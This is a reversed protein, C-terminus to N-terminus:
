LGGAGLYVKTGGPQDAFFAVGSTITGGGQWAADYGPTYSGGASILQYLTINYPNVNECAVMGAVALWGSDPIVAGEGFQPQGASVALVLGAGGASVTGCNIPGNGVDTVSTNIAGPAGAVLGSWEQMIARSDHGQPNVTWAATDGGVVDRWGAWCNENASGAIPQWETFASAIPTPPGTDRVSMTLTLKNGPTPAGDLTVTVGCTGVQRLQVSKTQVLTAM